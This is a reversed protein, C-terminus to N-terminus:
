GAAALKVVELMSKPEAISRNSAGGTAPTVASPKPVFRSYRENVKKLADESLKVAEQPTPFWPKGLENVKQLIVREVEEAIAAQKLHWDPDSKAKDKEWTEVSSLTQETAAKQENAAQEARQQETAATARRTALAADANAKALAKADEVTLFGQDVRQQLAPPLTEGVINELAAVVPRIRELAARPDNRMLSTIELTGRVDADTLGKGRVWGTFSDFEKAKPALSAIEDDKGKLKATLSKFRRQTKESLQKLEEPSLESEDESSKDTPDSTAPPDPEKAAPSAAKPEIAAKVADLMTGGKAPEPSSGPKADTTSSATSADSVQAPTTETAPTVTDDDSPSDTM